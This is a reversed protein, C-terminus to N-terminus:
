ASCSRRGAFAALGLPGPDAPTWGAHDVPRNPPRRSTPRVRFRSAEM